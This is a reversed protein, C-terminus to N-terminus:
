KWDSSLPKSGVEIIIPQDSQDCVVKLNTAKFKACQESHGPVWVTTHGDKTPVIYEFKYLRM